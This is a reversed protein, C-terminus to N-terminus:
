STWPSPASWRAAGAASSCRPAWSGSGGPCATPTASPRRHRRRHRRRVPPAPRLEAARRGRGGEGALVAAKLSLAPRLDAIVPPRDASTPAGPRHRLHRHRGPGRDFRATPHLLAGASTPPTASRRATATTPSPGCCPTSGPAAPGRHLPRRARRRRCLPHLRQRWSSPQARRRHRRGPRRRRHPTPASGTCGPTSRSTSGCGGTTTPPAKAAARVGDLTYLTPELGFAVCEGFEPSAPSPRPRRDPRRPRRRPAAAGEDTIAVGLHTAGADLAAAAVPGAGHGYGDAKVM